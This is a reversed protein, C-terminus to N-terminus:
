DPTKTHVRDYAVPTHGHGGGNDSGTQSFIEYYDRAFNYQAQAYEDSFDEGFEAKYECWNSWLLGCVSIYAYIKRRTNPSCGETFYHEILADAQTKDYMAYVIFMAIDIHPDQMGSYEWDILKIEGNPLFIFNDPVADIHALTRAKPQSDIFARLSMVNAKAAAYDDYRSPASRRLSEYYQIREFPCFIHDVTLAQEHFERLKGMCAALDAPSLTDCVRSSEWYRTIKYGTEPNIYVIDDCIGLHMIKQYVDYELARNILMDTGKGPIRIIFREHSPSVSFIFSDNTMGMKQPKIDKIDSPECEFIQAIKELM